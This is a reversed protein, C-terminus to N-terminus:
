TMSLKVLQSQNWNYVSVISIMSSALVHMCTGTYMYVTPGSNDRAETQIYPTLNEYVYCATFWRELIICFM